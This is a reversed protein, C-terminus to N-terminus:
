MPVTQGNSLRVRVNTVEKNKDPQLIFNECAKSKKAFKTEKPATPGSLSVGQGSFQVYPPPPPPVYDEQTRDDLSVSVGGQPYVKRLEKPIYGENLEKM